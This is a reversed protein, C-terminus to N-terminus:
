QANLIARVQGAPDSGGSLNDPSAFLSVIRAYQATTLNTLDVGPVWARIQTQIASSLQVPAQQALAGLASATVLAAALAFSKM